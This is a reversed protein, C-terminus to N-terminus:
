GARQYSDFIYSQVQTNYPVGLDKLCESMTQASGSLPQSQPRKLCATIQTDAVSLPAMAPLISTAYVKIKKSETPQGFSELDTGLNVNSLPIDDQNETPPSVIMSIQTLQAKRSSAYDSDTTLSCFGSQGSVTIDTMQENWKLLSTNSVNFLSASTQSKFCFAVENGENHMTYGILSLPNGSKEAYGGLGLRYFVTDTAQMLLQQAQSNTTISLNMVSQRIAWTGVISIVVLIFLVIILTSGIQKKM